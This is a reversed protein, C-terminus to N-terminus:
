DVCDFKGQVDIDERLATQNKVVCTYVGADDETSKHIMLRGESDKIDFRGGDAIETEGKFRHILFPICYSILLYNKVM